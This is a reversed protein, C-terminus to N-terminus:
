LEAFRPTIAQTALTALNRMRVSDQCAVIGYLHEWVPSPIFLWFYDALNWKIQFDHSPQEVIKKEKEECWWENKEKENKENINCTEIGAERWAWYKNSNNVEYLTWGSEDYCQKFWTHWFSKNIAM